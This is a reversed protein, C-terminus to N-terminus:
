VNHIQGCFHLQCMAYTCLHHNDSVCLLICTSYGFALCLNVCFHMFCEMHMHVHLNPGFTLHHGNSGLPVAIAVNCMM